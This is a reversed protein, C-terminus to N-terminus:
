TKDFNYETILFWFLELNVYKSRSITKFLSIEPKYKIKKELNEYYINLVKDLFM